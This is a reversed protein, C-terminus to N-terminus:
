SAANRARAAAPARGRAPAATRRAAPRCAGPGSGTGGVWATRRTPGASSYNRAHQEDDVYAVGLGVEAHEAVPGGVIASCQRKAVTRSDVRSSSPAASDFRSARRPRFNSSMSASSRRRSPAGARLATSPSTAVEVEPVLHQDDPGRDPGPHRDPHVVRALDAGVPQDVRHGGVVPHAVGAHHDVETGRDGIVHDRRRALVQAPDDGRPPSRSRHGTRARPSAAWPRAPWAGTVSRCTSPRRSGCRSRTRTRRGPRRSRPRSRSSSPDWVLTSAVPPSAGASHGLHALRDVLDVVQQRQGPQPQDPLAVSSRLQPLAPGSPARRAARRSRREPPALRLSGPVPVGPTRAVIAALILLAMRRRDTPDEAALQGFTDLLRRIAAFVPADDIEDPVDCALRALALM